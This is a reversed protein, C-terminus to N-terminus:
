RKSGVAPAPLRLTQEQNDYLARVCATARRFRYMLKDLSEIEDRAEGDGIEGNEDAEADFLGDRFDQVIAEAALMASIVENRECM